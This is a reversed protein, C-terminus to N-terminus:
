ERVLRPCRRAPAPMCRRAPQPFARTTRRKGCSPLPAPQKAWTYGMPHLKQVNRRLWRRASRCVTSGVRLRGAVDVCVNPPVCAFACLSSIPIVRSSEADTSNSVSPLARPTNVTDCTLAPYLFRKDNSTLSDCADARQSPSAGLSRQVRAVKLSIVRTIPVCPRCCMREDLITM